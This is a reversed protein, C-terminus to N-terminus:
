HGRGTDRAQIRYGKMHMHLYVTLSLGESLRVKDKCSEGRQNRGQFNQVGM